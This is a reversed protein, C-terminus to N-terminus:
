RAQVADGEQMKAADATPEALGISQNGRTLVIRVQAIRKGDRLVDLLQQSEIGDETGLSLQLLGSEAKTVVVKGFVNPGAALEEKPATQPTPSLVDNLSGHKVVNGNDDIKICYPYMSVPYGLPHEAESDAVITSYTMKTDAIGRRIEEESTGKPHVGIVIIM